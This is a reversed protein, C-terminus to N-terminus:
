RHEVYLIMVLEVNSPRREVFVVNNVVIILLMGGIVRHVLFAIHTKLKLINKIHKGSNIVIVQRLQFKKVVIILLMGGIIQTVLLALLMKLQLALYVHKTQASLVVVNKVSVSKPTIGNMISRVPFVLLM